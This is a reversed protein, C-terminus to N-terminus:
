GWTRWPTRPQMLEVEPPLEIDHATRLNVHWGPQPEYVLETETFLVRKYCIGLVSLHYGPRPQGNADIVGAERLATEMQERTDTRLFYTRM